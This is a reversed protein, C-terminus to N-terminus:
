QLTQDQGIIPAECEVVPADCSPDACVLIEAQLAKSWQPRIQTGPWIKGCQNCKWFKRMLRLLIEDVVRKQAERKKLQEYESGSTPGVLPLRGFNSIVLDGTEHDIQLPKRIRNSRSALNEKNKKELKPYDPHKADPM